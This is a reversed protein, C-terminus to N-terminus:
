VDKQLSIIFYIRHANGHVMVPQVCHAFAQIANLVLNSLKQEDDDFDDTQNMTSMNCIQSLVLIDFTMSEIDCSTTTTATATICM